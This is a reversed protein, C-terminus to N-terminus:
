LILLHSLSYPARQTEREYGSGGERGGERSGELDTICYKANTTIGVLLAERTPEYDSSVLPPRCIQPASIVVNSASSM